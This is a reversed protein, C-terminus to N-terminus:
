GPEARPQREPREASPGALRFGITQFPAVAAELNQRKEQSWFTSLATSITTLAHALREVRAKIDSM